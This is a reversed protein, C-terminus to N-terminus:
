WVYKSEVAKKDLRAPTGYIDTNPVSFLGKAPDSIQVINDIYVEILNGDPEDIIIQRLVVPKKQLVISITRETTYNYLKFLTGEPSKIVEDLRFDKKWEEGDVLLFNFMNEKRDIRTTQDLAYDYIALERKNGVILLPYPPYYNCRFNYPKIIILKGRAEEGRSDTQTFDLAVSKLSQLYEAVTDISSAYPQASITILCIFLFFRAYM